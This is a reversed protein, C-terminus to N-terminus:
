CKADGGKVIDSVYRGKLKYKNIVWKMYNKIQNTEVLYNYSYYHVKKHSSNSTIFLNTLLDNLKNEDIHHIHELTDLKRGLLKEVLVRYRYQSRGTKDHVLM